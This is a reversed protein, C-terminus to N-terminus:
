AHKRRMIQQGPTNLFEPLDHMEVAMGGFYGQLMDVGMATLVDAQTPTEVGEAVTNMKLSRAMALTAELIARAQPSRAADIVLSKDLKLTDFDFRRLYGLSAFGSGYDDLAVTFGADRIARLAGPIRTPDSLMAGETIEIEIRSPEIGHACINQVIQDHFGEEIIQLPSINVNIKFPHPAAALDHSVRNVVFRTLPGILNNIEAIPVFIDPEVAGLAECQWRLLAEASRIKRSRADLIPQYLVRLGDGSEIAHALETLIETEKKIELNPAQLATELPEAADLDTQDASTDLVFALKVSGAIALGGSGFALWLYESLSALLSVCILVAVSLNGILAIRRGQKMCRRSSPGLRAMHLM